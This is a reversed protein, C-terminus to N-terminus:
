HSGHDTKPPNKLSLFVSILLITLIVILGAAPPVHVLPEVCMKVGVLVLIASLGYKLLHFKAMLDELVFFLSRLGLIAFINSTYVIYPDRTVGFVAPVSDLAFLVDSTEILALAAFGISLTLRGNERIFFHGHHPKDSLPLFKKLLKFTRTELPNLEEVGGQFMKFGTYILFAGFIYILFHFRELLASGVAIMAGRLIIAGLIGWFLMRHQHQREIKFARFIVLFVFLNDVSLSKEVVYGTLYQTGAAAGDRMWVYAGFSLGLAIWFLSWLLAEKVRIVHDKRNMVGLDFALLGFIIAHFILWAQYTHGYLM